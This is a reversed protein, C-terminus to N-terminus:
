ILASFEKRAGAARAYRLPAFQFVTRCYVKTRQEFHFEVYRYSIEGPESEKSIALRIFNIKPLGRASSGKPSEFGAFGHQKFQV